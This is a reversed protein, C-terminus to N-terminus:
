SEEVENPDKVEDEDGEREALRSESYVEGVFDRLAERKVLVPVKGRADEGSLPKGSRVGNELTVEGYIRTGIPLDYVRDVLKNYLTEAAVAAGGEVEAKGAGRFKVKSAKNEYDTLEKTTPLRAFVHISRKWEGHVRHTVVSYEETDKLEILSQIQRHADKNLVLKSGM